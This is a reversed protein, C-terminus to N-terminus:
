ELMERSARSRYWLLGGLIILSGYTVVSGMELRVALSKGILDHLTPLSLAFSVFMVNRLVRRTRPDLDTSRWAAYLLAYPLLLVVLYPKRTLPSLITAAVFVVAWEVQAWRSGPRPTGRCAIAGLVAAIACTIEWALKASRAGSLPLMFTGPVAFPIYGYGLIRDWMSYVSQQANGSGWSGHLVAPWLAVDKWFKAWGFFFAPSLFFVVSAAAMWFAARWRKRYLLYPLFVIAMVKMAAAAALAIGGASERGNAQLFLGWLALSFLIMNVQLLEFNNIIFPLTLAFPVLLEPSTIALSTEDPRLSLRKGHVLRAILDLAWVISAWTLAIWVIRALYPSMRDLLGLPVAALSFFPPWTNTGVSTDLYIDRGDFFAQGVEAYGAFDVSRRAYVFFSAVFALFLACLVLRRQWKGLQECKSHPNQGGSPTLHGVSPINESSHSEGNALVAGPCCLEPKDGGFSLSQNETRGAL